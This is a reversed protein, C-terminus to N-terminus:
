HACLMCITDVGETQPSLLPYASALCCLVSSGTLKRVDNSKYFASGPEKQMNVQKQM